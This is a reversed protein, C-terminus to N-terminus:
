ALLGTKLHKLPNKLVSMPDNRLEIVNKTEKFTKRFIYRSRDLHGFLNSVASFKSGKVNEFLLAPGGAAYVRRHIAAMELYPDVAEHIRVLQGSKELDRVCEELNHYMRNEGRKKAVNM